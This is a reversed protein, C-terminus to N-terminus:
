FLVMKFIVDFGKKWCLLIWNERNYKLEKLSYFFIWLIVHCDDLPEKEISLPALTLNM